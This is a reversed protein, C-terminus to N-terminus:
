RETLEELTKNKTEPALFVTLIMGILGAVSFFLLGYGLGYLSVITPFTTLGLIAGIRSISTGWGQGTARISTPFLEQGYVFDTSGMGWSQTLEFLIYMSAILAGITGVAFADKPIRFAVFALVFLSMFMGLFGLITVPKRGWSDVTLICLISGIIAISSFIASGLISLSHTLGLLVLITPTFLGIGYFAVDYFFWATGFYITNKVYKSNFLTFFSVRQRSSNIDDSKGVVQKEIDRAGSSNGRNALWRASEPVKRRLVLVAIAPIIGIAFMLRWSNSGLPLLLYGVVYAFAAGVWWALGDSALFKGRSKKPSFESIITAGIAYDAGIALGLILRFTFLSWFNFSVSILATFVIFIVMDWMYMFKRGRLDTVYGISLAGFLMGIVTSAAMLGKGLPTSAYSFASLATIITLAVGIISIDYGDLFTGAVSLATIRFHTKNPSADDLSSFVSKKTEGESM